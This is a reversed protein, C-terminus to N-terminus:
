KQSLHLGDSLSEEREPSFGGLAEFANVVPINM